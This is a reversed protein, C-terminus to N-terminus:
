IITKLGDRLLDQHKYLADKMLEARAFRADRDRRADDLAGNITRTDRKADGAIDKIPKGNEYEVLWDRKEQISIKKPM